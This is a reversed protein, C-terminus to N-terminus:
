GQVKQDTRTTMPTTVGPNDNSSKREVIFGRDSLSRVLSVICRRWIDVIEMFLDSM